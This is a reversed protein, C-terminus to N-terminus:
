HTALRGSRHASIDLVVHLLFVGHSGGVISQLVDSPVSYDIADLEM